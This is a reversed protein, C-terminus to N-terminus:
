IRCPSLNKKKFGINWPSAFVNANPGQMPKSGWRSIKLTFVLMNTDLFALIQTVGFAFKLIQTVGLAIGWRSDTSYLNHQTGFAFKKRQGHMKTDIEIANPETKETSYPSLDVHLIQSM